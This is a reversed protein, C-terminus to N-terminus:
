SLAGAVTLAPAGIRVASGLELREREGAQPVVLDFLSTDDSHLSTSVATGGDLTYRWMRNTENRAYVSLEGDVGLFALNVRGGFAEDVSRLASRPDLGAALRDLFFQWGVESDAQGHLRQGFAQRAAEARELFGNHCWAGRQRAVFPQTDAMQITSLKSPRRLHVMFRRSIRTALGPAERAEDAFRHLGHAGRVEGAGDDLWAVGWGFGGLGLQELRTVIPALQHFPRPVDFAAVLLECV